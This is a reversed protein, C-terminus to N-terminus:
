TVNELQTNFTHKLNWVRLCLHLMSPFFIYYHLHNDYIKGQLLTNHTKLDYDFRGKRTRLGGTKERM